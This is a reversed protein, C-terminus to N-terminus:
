CNCFLCHYSERVKKTLKNIIFQMLYMLSFIALFNAVTIGLKPFVNLFNFGIIGLGKWLNSISHNVKRAPIM